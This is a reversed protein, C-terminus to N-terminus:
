CCSIHLTHTDVPTYTDTHVGGEGSYNAQHWTKAIELRRPSSVARAPTRNVVVVALEGAAWLNSKKGCCSSLLGDMDVQKKDMDIM